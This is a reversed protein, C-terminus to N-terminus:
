FRYMIAIKYVVKGAFTMSSIQAIYLTISVVRLWNEYTFTLPVCDLQGLVFINNHM